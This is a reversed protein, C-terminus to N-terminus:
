CIFLVKMSIDVRAIDKGQVGQSKRFASSALVKDAEPCHVVVQGGVIWIRQVGEGAIPSIFHSCRLFFVGEVFGGGRVKNGGGSGRLISIRVCFRDAPMTDLDDVPGGHVVDVSLHL